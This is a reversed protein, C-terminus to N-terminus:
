APTGPAQGASSTRASEIRAEILDLLGAGGDIAIRLDIRMVPLAVEAAGALRRIKAWDKETVVIMAAGARQATARLDDLDEQSFDHHDPFTRFGACTGPLASLQRELGAPNAIGAAAIFRQGALANLPLEAEGSRLGVHEHRARYVPASANCTRLISAIRRCEDEGALDSRTILFADARRLGALPERLLGRPHVHGYGFPQTADILVLDFDRAIRRHQFGDDLVLADVEPHDRRVRRGGAVRDPDVHVIAPSEPMSLAEALVSQEDSLGGAGRRYGRMLVAPNMGRQRLQEVTWRVVPTKGTGGATINGVSIVPVDLRHVRKVGADYLKNRARMLMAYPVEAARLIGRLLSAAVGRRRGSMLEHAFQETSDGM